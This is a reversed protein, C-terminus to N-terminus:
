HHMQRGIMAKPVHQLDRLHHITNKMASREENSVNSPASRTLKVSPEREPMALSEFPPFWQKPSVRATLFGHSPLPAVRSSREVQPLTITLSSVSGAAKGGAPWPEEAEPSKRSEQDSPQPWSDATPYSFAGPPTQATRTTTELAPLELAESVHGPSGPPPPQVVASTVNRTSAEATASGPMEASVGQEVLGAVSGQPFPQAPPVPSVSDFRDDTVPGIHLAEQLHGARDQPFTQRPVPRKRGSRPAGPPPHATAISDESPAPEPLSLLSDVAALPEGGEAGEAEGGRQHASTSPQQEGGDREGGPSQLRDASRELFAGLSNTHSPADQDSTKGPHDKKARPQRSRKCVRLDDVSAASEEPASLRTSTVALAGIDEM